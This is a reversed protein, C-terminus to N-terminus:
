GKMILGLTREAGQNENVGANQSWLKVYLQGAVEAPAVHMQGTSPAIEVLNGFEDYLPVFTGGSERSVQFGINAATWASPMEVSLFAYPGLYFEGSLAEGNAITVKQQTHYRQIKM